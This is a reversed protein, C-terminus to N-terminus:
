AKSAPLVEDPIKGLFYDELVDWLQANTFNSEYIHTLMAISLKHRAETLELIRNRYTQPKDVIRKLKSVQLVRIALQNGAGGSMNFTM